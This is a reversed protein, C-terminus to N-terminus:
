PLRKARMTGGGQRLILATAAAGGAAGEMVFEIEAGVADAHFLTASEPELPLARQGTAQAVLVDGERTVALIFGPGLEYRGVCKELAAADLVAKKRPAPPDGTRESREPEDAGNQYVLMHTVRGSEDPVFEVRTLSNRYFFSTESSPVLELKPAGTRQTRLRGDELTVVRKENPGVAYTGACKALAEPAVKAEIADPFPRGIAAAALRTAVVSPPATVATTNSLVAVFVGDDPVRMAHTVFGFIGGGHEVTRRDRLKGAQLGFGYELKEGSALSGPTEMRALSAKSVVKGAELAENWIALDDVTSLLAGAAYPQTMSLYRANAIGGPAPDYGRARRPVIEENRGYRSDKMGLPGFFRKEVFDEYTSGAVKELIAGLLVYGSNNYSWREGPAFDMPENKFGDILAEVTLDERVKTVMWGPIDTYSRIGSTHNLLHEITITKGGTPYDPLFKTIPDSVALKGEEELLLIAAATFQKTISGIEFVHDASLPVSLEVDALGRAGRYVVRGDKKVIAAAGPADAPFSSELISACKAALAKTAEDAAAAPRALAFSVGFLFVALAAAPRANLPAM